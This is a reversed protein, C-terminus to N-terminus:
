SKRQPEIQENFMKVFDFYNKSSDTVDYKILSVDDLNTMYKNKDAQSNTPIQYSDVTSGINQAEPSLAWDVYSKAETDNNNADLIAVGGVEYGTGEKPYTVTLDDNGEKIYKTCDQAFGIGITAKSEAVDKAVDSGVAEYANMNPRLTEMYDIANQMGGKLVNQTWLTTYGTGSSAPDAMVIKGKLKSNELDQWSTPAEEGIEKLSTKNSCFGIVSTYIGTWYNKTDKYNDAIEDRVPSKYEKLLGADAAEEFGDSPGGVWVDFEQNGKNKILNSLTEGQSLRTYKVNVGTKEHFANAWALCLSDQAGCAVRLDGSPKDSNNTTVGCGTLFFPVSLVFVAIFSFEFIKRLTVESLFYSL